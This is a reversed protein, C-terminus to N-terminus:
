PGEIVVINSKLEPERPVLVKPPISIQVPCIGKVVSVMVEGNKPAPKCQALPITRATMGEYIDM